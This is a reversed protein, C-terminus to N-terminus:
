GTPPGPPLPLHRALAQRVAAWEDADLKGLLTAASGQLTAIKETRVKSPIPLGLRAHDAIPVDGSWAARAANTIM